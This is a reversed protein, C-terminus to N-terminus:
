VNRFEVKGKHEVLLSAGKIREAKMEQEFLNNLKNLKEQNMGYRRQPIAAKFSDRM